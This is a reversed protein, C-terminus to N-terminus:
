PPRVPRVKPVDCPTHDGQHSEGQDKGPRAKVVAGHEAGAQGEDQGDESQEVQQKADLARGPEGLGVIQGLLLSAVAGKKRRAQCGQTSAWRQGCHWRVQGQRGCQVQGICNRRNTDCRSSCLQGWLHKPCNGAGGYSGEGERAQQDQQRM